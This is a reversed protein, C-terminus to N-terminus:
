EYDEGQFLALVKQCLAVGSYQKIQQVSFARAEQWHELSELYYDFVEPLTEIENIIWGNKRAQVYDTTICNIQPLGSTIGAIQTFLDPFSSLDLMLRTEYLLKFLTEDSEFTVIEFSEQLAKVFAIQKKTEELLLDEIENEGSGEKEFEELLIMEESFKVLMLQNYFHELHSVQVPETRINVKFRREEDQSMKEQIYDFTYRIIDQNISNETKRLDFYLVEEKLEQSISLNFRTDFPSIKHIKEKTETLTKFYQALSESDVIIGRAKLVLFQDILRTEQNLPVRNKFYSLVMRELFLSRNLIKRNGKHVAIMINHAGSQSLEAELLEFVLDNVSAYHNRLLTKSNNVNVLCEDEKLFHLFIREGYEDLYETSVHEGKEFFRRSSLFGRDDYIDSSRLVSDQYHAVESIHGGAGMHVEGIKLGKQYVLISFPTYTYSVSEPFDLDKLTLAKQLCEEFGQLKDFLSVYNSELLGFRHLFYRLQPLYDSVVIRYDAQLNYFSQIPGILDDMSVEGASVGQWSPVFTIM